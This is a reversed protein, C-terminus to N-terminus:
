TKTHNTATGGPLLSRRLSRRKLGPYPARACVAQEGWASHRQSSTVVHRRSLGGSFRKRGSAPIPMSGERTPSCADDARDPCANQGPHRFQCVRMTSPWTPYCGDSNLDRDRCWVGARSADSQGTDRANGQRRESGAMQTLGQKRQLVPGGNRPSNCPQSSESPPTRAMSRANSREWCM